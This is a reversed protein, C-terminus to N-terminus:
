RKVRGRLSVLALGFFLPGLLRLVIQTIEGGYSLTVAPQDPPKLLSIMSEFSFLLSRALSASHGHAPQIGGAAFIVAGAAATVLLAAVARSARLAYGSILWYVYLVAQEVVPTAPDLRRMEMEGYYFDAAGPEDKNTERGKRLGRYVSAVDAPRVARNIDPLEARALQSPQSEKPYWDAHSRVTGALRRLKSRLRRPRSVQDSNPSEEPNARWFQEEAIVMRHSLLGTPSRSFECDGELRLGDLNHATHFRCARLDVDALLLQAVDTRRLSILRPRASSGSPGALVSPAGLATGEMVIQPGGFLDVIDFGEPFSARILEVMAECTVEDFRPARDFRTDHFAATDTFTARYFSARGQFHARRFSVRGQFVTSRFTTRSTFTADHFRAGHFEAGDFSVDGDFVTESFDASRLCPRGNTQPAVSFIERLLQETIRAGKTFDLCSGNHLRELIVRREQAGVHRICEGADGVAV